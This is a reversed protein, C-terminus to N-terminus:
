PSNATAVARRYAASRRDGGRPRPTPRRNLHEGLTRCFADDGLVWAKNTADRIRALLADDLPEAFSERYADQRAERSRGLKRYLPHPTVLEDERGEANFGYSSWDYDAPSEALGARVPNLEVYRSCALLFAQPNLLTARYRGEWLTGTRGRRQNFYRVYYRGLHQMMKGIGDEEWPTLLVHFHTPMLVYAHIDCRFKKAAGILKEWLFWYDEEDYLIIQRNNGRQIVHQPYGPLVFRPLRAM